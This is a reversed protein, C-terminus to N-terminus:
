SRATVPYPLRARRLEDTLNRGQERWAAGEVRGAAYALPDTVHERAPRGHFADTAGQAWCRRDQAVSINVTSRATEYV